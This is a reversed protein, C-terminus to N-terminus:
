SDRSSAPSPSDPRGLCSVVVTVVLSIAFTAIKIDLFEGLAAVNQWILTSTMGALMGALAGNRTIGRWRLALLLPPGFSSGLGAWAYAVWDFILDQNGFALALAVGAVGLTALRSLLVLRGPSANRNVLQAYIDEVIASTAVLLQSDATSMMAAIAGAIALGAFWAPLLTKALLPMVQEPDELGPLLGIGVLGIFAAGWYSLLVWSVAITKGTRTEEASRIAMYRTLLHPQGFYGLGWSVGGLMVGFVFARGTQGGSMTLFEPGRAAVADLFASPGGLKALGLLPLAVAVVMMLLGQVVDTWVVALFGGMFTYLVVVAAGIWMGTAVDLGFTANLIKGAGVFQAGVYSTYFVLIIVMSVVRLARTGDGFRAEFFDPITLAGLRRAEHNLLRSLLTWSAFVGFAIGIVSWFERFGLAYAAGPLGLLFWASEGSARESLAAAFPSLSRGGLVFDDLTRMRRWTVFGVALVVALYLGLGALLWANDTM